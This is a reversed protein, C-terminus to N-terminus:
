RKGSRSAELLEEDFPDVYRLSETLLLGLCGAVTVGAAVHLFPNMDSHFLRGISWAGGVVLATVAHPWLVGYPRVRLTSKRTTAYALRRGAAAECVAAVLTPWKAIAVLGARWHIGRESRVDLYFRQRYLNSVQFLSGLFVLVPIASLALVRPTIGTLLMFVLLALGILVLLGNAYGIGQLLTLAREKFPLTGALAPYARFKVDLVSRAWRRQQTLYGSWDVPTLGRALIRPVYVGEWRARKYLLAILLDDADHPAFGGVGKLATVRHTNHCGIVIPHGAGYSAMLTSSHYGYTEEAAGQAIFSARQNYYAQAAQVYAVRPCDFYGLVERLFSPEPVHDCDFATIIEYRDFGVDYLWANYNGHKSSSQFVGRDAHYQLRGKRSFHHAGLQACLTRVRDDNGEDLVWTDHPYDLAILARVTAALMDFPEVGPVFATAVAVRWGSRAPMPRPRKMLPMSVWRLTDICIHTVVLVTLVAFSVPHHRWDGFSFWYLLFYFLVGLRVVSLAGYVCYDWWRFVRDAVVVPESSAPVTM